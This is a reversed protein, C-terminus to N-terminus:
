LLSKLVQIIRTNTKIQITYDSAICEFSRDHFTFVYHQYQRGDRSYNSIVKYNKELETIWESNEILHAEYERLGKKGLRHNGVLNEDPMGMKYEFCHSFTILAVDLEQTYYALSVKHEDALLTPTPAGIDWHPFINELVKVREM